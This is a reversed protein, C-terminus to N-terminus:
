NPEEPSNDLFVRKKTLALVKEEGTLAFAAAEARAQPCPESSCDPTIEVWSQEDL